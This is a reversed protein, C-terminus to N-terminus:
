RFRNKSCCICRLEIFVLKRGRQLYATNMICRDFPHLEELCESDVDLVRDTLTEFNSNILGIVSNM